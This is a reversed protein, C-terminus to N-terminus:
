LSTTQEDVHFTPLFSHVSQDQDRRDDGTCLLTYVRLVTRSDAVALM